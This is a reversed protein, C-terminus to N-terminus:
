RAIRQPKRTEDSETLILPYLIRVRQFSQLIQVIRLSHPQTEEPTSPSHDIITYQEAALGGGKFVKCYYCRRM